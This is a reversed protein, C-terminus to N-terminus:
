EAVGALGSNFSGVSQYVPKIVFKGSKDIFGWKGKVQVAAVGEKFGYAAEFDADIARNGTHDIFYYVGKKGKSIVCLGNSFGDQGVDDFQPPIAEKGTADVFGYLNGSRVCALGETFDHAEAYLGPVVLECKANVYGWNTRDGLDKGKKKYSTAVASFGEKLPSEDYLTVGASKFRATVQGEHNVLMPGQKEWAWVQGEGFYRQYVRAPVETNHPYVTTYLHNCSKDLFGFEPSGDKRMIEYGVLGDGSETFQHEFPEPCLSKGNEDFLFWGKNNQAMIYGDGLARVTDYELPVILEGRTNIAGFKHIEEANPGDSSKPPIAVDVAAVNGKFGQIWHFQPKIVYNGQHDIFGIKGENPHLYAHVRDCSFSLPMLFFFAPLFLSRLGPKTFHSLSGASSTPGPHPRM